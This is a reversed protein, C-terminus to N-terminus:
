RASFADCRRRHGTEFALIKPKINQFSAPRRGVVANVSRKLLVLRKFDNRCVTQLIGEYEQIAALPYPLGYASSILLSPAKSVLPFDEEMRNDSLYQHFLKFHDGMQYFAKLAYQRKAAPDQIEMLDGCLKHSVRKRAFLEQSVQCEVLFANLEGGPAEITSRIFNEANFNPAYPNFDLKYAYHSLEHILDLLADEFQHNQNLYIKASSSYHISLPNSRDFHRTLTTDTLSGEGPHVIEILRKGSKAAKRSALQIVKRARPSRNLISLLRAINTEPDQSYKAWSGDVRGTFPHVIHDSAVAMKMLIAFTLLFTLSLFRGLNM